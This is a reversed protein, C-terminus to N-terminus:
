IDDEDSEFHDDGLFSFLDDCSGCVENCIYRILRSNPIDIDGITVNPSYEEEYYKDEDDYYSFTTLSVDFEVRDYKQLASILTDTERRQYKHKGNVLWINESLVSIRKLLFELFSKRTMIFYASYERKEITSILFPDTDNHYLVLLTNMTELLYDKDEVSLDSWFSFEDQIAKEREGFPLTLFKSYNFTM